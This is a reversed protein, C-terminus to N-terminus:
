SKINDYYSMTGMHAKATICVIDLVTPVGGTMKQILSCSIYQEKIM